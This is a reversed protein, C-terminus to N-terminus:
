EWVIVEIRRNLKKNEPSDNPAIPQKEGYGRAELRGSSIFPYTNVLFAVVKDARKESLTQNADEEGYSDTHGEIIVKGPAFNEIFTAVKAFEAGAGPNLTFDGPNFLM